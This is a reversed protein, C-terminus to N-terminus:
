LLAMDESLNQILLRVLSSPELGKKPKIHGSLSLDAVGHCSSFLLAAIQTPDSQRLAEVSQAQEVVQLFMGFIRQSAALLADDEGQQVNHSMMLAYREPFDIMFQLFGLLLDELRSQPPAKQVIEGLQQELEKFYEM